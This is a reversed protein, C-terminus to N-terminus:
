TKKIKIKNKIIVEKEQLMKLSQESLPLVSNNTINTIIGARGKPIIQASLFHSLYIYIYILLIENFKGKGVSFFFM